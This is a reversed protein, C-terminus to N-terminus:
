HPNIDDLVWPSKMLILTPLTIFIFIGDMIKIIYEVPKSTQLNFYVSVAYM